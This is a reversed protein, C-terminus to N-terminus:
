KTRCITRYIVNITLIFTITIWICVSTVRENLMRFNVFVAAMFIVYKTPPRYATVIYLISLLCAVIIYLSDICVIINFYIITSLIM